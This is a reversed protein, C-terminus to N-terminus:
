KKLTVLVSDDIGLEKLKARASEAEARSAFPGIHVRAEIIAPIGKSQMKARLNEANAVTNFVGLQVGFQSKGSPKGAPILPQSVFVETTGPAVIIGQSAVPPVAQAPQRAAVEPAAAGEAVPAVPPADGKGAQTSGNAASSSAHPTVQASLPFGSTHMADFMVWIGFLGVAIITAAAIWMVMRKKLAEGAVLATEQTQIDDAM